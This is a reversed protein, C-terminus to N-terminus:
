ETDESEEEEGDAAEEEDDEETDWDLTLKHGWTIADWDFDSTIEAVLEEPGFLRPEGDADEFAIVVPLAREVVFPHAEISEQWELETYTGEFASVDDNDIWVLIYESGDEREFVAVEHETQTSM